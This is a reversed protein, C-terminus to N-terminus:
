HKIEKDQTELKVAEIFSTAPNVALVLKQNNEEAKKLLALMSAHDDGAKDLFAPSPRMRLTVIYKNQFQPNDEIKGIWDETVNFVTEVEKSQSNYLVAIQKKKEMASKLTGYFISYGRATDSIYFDGDKTNILLRNSDHKLSIVITILAIKIM